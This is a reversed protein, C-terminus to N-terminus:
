DAVRQVAAPWGFVVGFTCCRIFCYRWWNSFYRIFYWPLKLILQLYSPSLITVFFIRIPFDEFCLFKGWWISIYTVNKGQGTYINELRGSIYNYTHWPYWLLYVHMIKRLTIRYSLLSNYFRFEWCDLM